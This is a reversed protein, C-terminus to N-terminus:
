QFHVYYYYYFYYWTADKVFFINTLHIDSKQSNKEIEKIRFNNRFNKEFEYIRDTQRDTQRDLTTTAIIM